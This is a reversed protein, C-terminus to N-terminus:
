INVCEFGWKNGYVKNIHMSDGLILKGNVALLISDSGDIQVAEKVNASVMLASTSAPSSYQFLTILVGSLNDTAQSGNSGDFVTLEELARELEAKADGLWVPDSPNLTALGWYGHKNELNSPQQTSWNNIVSLLGGIWEGITPPDGQTIQYSSMTTGNNRGFHYGNPSSINTENVANASSIVNGVPDKASFNHILSEQISNSSQEWPPDIVDFSWGLVTGLPSLFFPVANIVVGKAWGALGAGLVKLSGWYPNSTKYMFFPGNTVVPAQRQLASVKYDLTDKEWAQLKLKRPDIVVWHLGIPGGSEQGYIFGNQKFEDTQLVKPFFLAKDRVISVM